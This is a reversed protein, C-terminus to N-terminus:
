GKAMRQTTGDVSDLAKSPATNLLKHYAKVLTQKEIDWQFERHAREYGYASMRARSTEDDLLTIMTDGLSQPTSEPAVLAADRAESRAQPLDFQVFPIGLAMYEFVKNMSLKDNCPSPPDPIVGIDVTCLNELLPHGSMYGTFRIYDDMGLENCLAKLSDIEAGDGILVCGIDTRGRANVIHHMARVLIDIGDQSGMIGVYGITKEFRGKLDRNLPVKVFRTLDPYSKVIAVDDADMGGREIALRKFTENTAISQDAFFFTLREFLTLMRHMAGKRGFKLEFLEPCLDHQDFMFKRRFFIKYFAAILFILDPPNCAHIVSFGHRRFVKASLVFEWFLATGYEVVYGLAGNADVPLPHRYIHIDDLCEYSADHGRGKPCIISVTFGEARLAKAEQWVRRDFPAPLNEVIILIGRNSPDGPAPRAESVFQGAM